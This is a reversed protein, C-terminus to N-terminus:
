KRGGERGGREPDAGRKAGATQAIVARIDDAWTEADDPPRFSWSVESKGSGTRLILRDARRAVEYDGTSRPTIQVLIRERGYLTVSEKTVVIGAYAEEWGADRTGQDHTKRFLVDAARHVIGEAALRQEDEQTLASGHRCGIAGAFLLAIATAAAGATRRSRSRVPPRTCANPEVVIAM